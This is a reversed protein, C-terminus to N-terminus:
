CGGEKVCRFQMVRHSKVELRGSIAFPRAASEARPSLRYATVREAAMRNSGPAESDLEQGDKDRITLELRLGRGGRLLKLAGSYSSRM